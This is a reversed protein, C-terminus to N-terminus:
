DGEPLKTAAVLEAERQLLLRGAAVVGGGVFVFLGYVLAFLAGAFGLWPRELLQGALLVLAPPMCALGIAAPMLVGNGLGAVCGGRTNSRIQRAESRVPFPFFISGLNTIGLTVLVFGPMAALGAASQWAPVFAALVLGLLLVPSATLMFLVIGKALWIRHRPVPTLLLSALGKGEIGLGNQGAIWATFIAFLPLFLGLWPPLEEPLGSGVVSYGIMILPFLFGQLLGVRRQPTRWVLRLEKAMLQQLDAPLWSPADLRRGAPAAQKRVQPAKRGFGTLAFGNGTVLRFSLQWWIWALALVWLLGV